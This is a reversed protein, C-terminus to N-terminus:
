PDMVALHRGTADSVATESYVEDMSADVCGPMGLPPRFRNCNRNHLV